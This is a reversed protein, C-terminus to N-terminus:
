SPQCPPPMCANCSQQQACQWVMPKDGEHGHELSSISSCDEKHKLYSKCHNCTVLSQHLINNIHISLRSFSWFGTSNNKTHLLPIPIEVSSTTAKSPLGIKHLRLLTFSPIRTQTYNPPHSYWISNSQTLWLTLYFHYSFRTFSNNSNHDTSVPIPSSISRTWTTLFMSLHLSLPNVELHSFIRNLPLFNFPFICAFDIPPNRPINHLYPRLTFEQVYNFRNPTQVRARLQAKQFFLGHIRLNICSCFIIHSIDM